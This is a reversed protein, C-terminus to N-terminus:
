PPCDNKAFHNDHEEDSAVDVRIDEGVSECFNNHMITNGSSTPYYLPILALRPDSSTSTVDPLIVFGVNSGLSTNHHVLIDLGNQISIGFDTSGSTTNQHIVGGQVGLVRIGYGNELSSNHSISVGEGNQLFIGFLFGTMENHHLSLNRNYGRKAPDPDEPNLGYPSLAIGNVGRGNLRVITCHDIEVGDNWSHLGIGTSGTTEITLGTLRLDEAGFIGVANARASEIKLNRVEIQRVIVDPKPFYANAVPPGIRIISPLGATTAPDFIVAGGEGVLSIGSKNISIREQYRGAHVCVTDGEVAADIAAQITAYHDPVCLTEANAGSAALLLAALSITSNRMDDESHRPLRGQVRLVTLSTREWSARWVM